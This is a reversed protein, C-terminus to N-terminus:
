NASPKEIHDIVLVEVPGKTSKLKLGLQDQLATFISPGTPEPLPVAGPGPAGSLNDNAWILHIDFTGTLGTGDIVNRGLASNYTRSLNTALVAMSVGQGELTRNLGDVALRLGCFTPRPEGGAPAPPPPSDVSYPTCSGDKSPPLKAGGNVLVLEYVPLQRTERHLRMRFRDELLTRLMPGEMQQVSTEGDAKAQVDYHESGTWPSDGSLQYDQVGYAILILRRLTLNTMTLRGPLAQLLSRGDASATPKVSAIEFETHTTPPQTQGVAAASCIVVLLAKRGLDLHPACRHETIKTRVSARTKALVKPDPVFSNQCDAARM